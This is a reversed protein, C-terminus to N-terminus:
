LAAVSQAILDEAKASDTVMGSLTLFPHIM